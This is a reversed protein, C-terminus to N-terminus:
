VSIGSKYRERGKVVWDKGPFFLYTCTILFIARGFLALNMGQSSPIHTLHYKYQNRNSGLFYHLFMVTEKAKGVASLYVKANLSLPSSTVPCPNESLSPFGTSNKVAM